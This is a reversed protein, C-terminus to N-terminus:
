VVVEEVLGDFDQRLDPADVFDVRDFHAVDLEGRRGLNRKRGEVFLDEVFGEASGPRSTNGLLCSRTVVNDVNNNM